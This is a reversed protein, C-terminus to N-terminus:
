DLSKVMVKAKLAMDKQHQPCLLSAPFKKDLAASTGLLKDVGTRVPALPSLTSAQCRSATARPPDPSVQQFATLTLMVDLLLLSRKFSICIIVIFRKNM